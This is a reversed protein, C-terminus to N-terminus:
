EEESAAESLAWTWQDLPREKSLPKDGSKTYCQYVWNNNKFLIKILGLNPHTYMGEQFTGDM